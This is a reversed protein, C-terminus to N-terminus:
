ITEFNNQVLNLLTVDDLNNLRDKIMSVLITLGKEYEEKTIYDPNPIIDMNM